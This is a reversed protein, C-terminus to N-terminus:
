AFGLKRFVPVIAAPDDTMIADAGVHLLREAEESENITWYHVSLGIAHAKDILARRDLHVPGFHTPIQAARGALPFLRLAALPTALLRLVESRGLGTPGEYGLHRVQRITAADFSTLLVRDVAKVRRVVAVTARVAAAEHQKIDVNVPIGPFTVLLEELTPITFAEVPASPGRRARFGRGVDWTQVEALTSAGIMRKVHAAREGSPDHSVVVHGDRTMHVDTELATAGVDLARRFSPLTNEPLETAAGRHAYLLPM